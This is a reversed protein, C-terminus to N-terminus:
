ANLNGMVKRILSKQVSKPGFAEEFNQPIKNHCFFVKNTESSYSEVYVIRGDNLAVIDGTNLITEEQPPFFADDPIPIEKFFLTRQAGESLKGDETFTDFGGADFDVGICYASDRDTDTVKGHGNLFCWVKQGVKFHSM